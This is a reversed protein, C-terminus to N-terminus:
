PADHSVAVTLTIDSGDKKVHLTKNVPQSAGNTWPLHVSVLSQQITAMSNSKPIVVGASAMKTQATQLAQKQMDAIVAQGADSMLWGVDGKHSDLLQKDHDMGSSGSDTSSSSSPSPGSGPLTPTQGTAANTPKSNLENAGVVAAAFSGFLATNSTHGKATIQEQPISMNALPMQFIPEPDCLNLQPTGLTANYTHSSTLLVPTTEKSGNTTTGVAVMDWGTVNVAMKAGNDFVPTYCANKLDLNLRFKADGKWTAYMHSGDNGDLRVQLNLKVSFKVLDQLKQMMQQSQDWGSPANGGMLQLNRAIEAYVPCLNYKHGDAIDENIKDLVSQEWQAGNQLAQNEADHDEDKGLKQEVSSAAMLFKIGPYAQKPEKYYKKAMEIAKDWMLKSGISGADSEFGAPDEFQRLAKQAAGTLLPSNAGGLLQIQKDMALLGLIYTNEPELSQSVWAAVQAEGQTQSTDGCLHCPEDVMPPVPVDPKSRHQAYDHYQNYAGINAAAWAIVKASLAENPETGNPSPRANAPTSLQLVCLLFSGILFSPPFGIAKSRFARVPSNM